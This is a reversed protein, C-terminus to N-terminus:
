MFRIWFGCEIRNNEEMRDINVATIQVTAMPKADSRYLTKKEDLEWEILFLLLTSRCFYSFWFFPEIVVSQFLRKKWIETEEKVETNDSVSCCWLCKGIFQPM